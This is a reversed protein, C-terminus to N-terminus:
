GVLRYVDSRFLCFPLWLSGAGVAFVKSSPVSVPNPSRVVFRLGCEEYRAVMFEDCMVFMKKNRDRLLGHIDTIIHAPPPGGSDVSLVVPNSSETVTRITDAQIRPDHMTVNHTCYITDYWPKLTIRQTWHKTITHGDSVTVMLNPHKQNTLSPTSQKRLGINLITM